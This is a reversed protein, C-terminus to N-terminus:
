ANSHPDIDNKGGINNKALELANMFNIAFEKTRVPLNERAASELSEDPGASNREYITVMKKALDGANKPDFYESDVPNQERHVPINSLLLAKGLSKAEEVTTSWGEFLSPQLIACSQRMLKHVDAYRILGLMVFNERVNKQSIQTLLGPFYNPNRYEFTNGSCVVIIEPHSNHLLELADIVIQHNKHVWFQNPLYFFKHPIHYQGCVEAPNQTYIHSDIQTVFPVVASRNQTEPAFDLLDHLASQSSVMICDAKKAVGSFESNRYNIEEASFLEPFHIHQFDPIWSVWPTKHNQHPRYISHSFVVDIRNENCIRDIVNPMFHEQIKKLVKKLIGPLYKPFTFQEPLIIEEDIGTIAPDVSLGAKHLFIIEALKNTKIAYTLNALYNIYATWGSFDAYIIGIRLKQKETM